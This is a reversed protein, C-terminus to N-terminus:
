GSSGGASSGGTPPDQLLEIARALTSLRQDLTDGAPYLRVTDVGAARWVALRERVMQETGILTTALVMEDPVLATAEERRGAVWLRQVQEAVEAFGQRAYASNYFNTTASGMGGLSFALKQKRPLLMQEVNDGFAVEAGQSIDLDALTRGARAAGASLADLYTDAAEPVFSTGLWGDAIEGTLELMKPSLAALYVPIRPNAPQALRMPKGEGGPLPLQFHKGQFAAKEGAALARVIRVTERMRGLPHAFPVGHLGEIVQPGSAGLGLLFRDGSMRALTLASMAVMAPTRTGLQLVASGLLIRETRAALYGLPGVADCGWAEAVWCVEVGLREAELVYDVLEPWPGAEASLQVSVRM